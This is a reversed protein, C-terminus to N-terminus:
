VHARGIEMAAHECYVNNVWAQSACGHALEMSVACIVDLGLEMGGFRAPQSIRPFQAALLEEVSEDPMRRLQEARTARERWVPALARAKAILDQATSHSM